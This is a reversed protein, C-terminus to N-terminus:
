HGQIMACFSPEGRGGSGAFLAWSRGQRAPVSRPARVWSRNGAPCRLLLAGFWGWNCWSDWCSLCLRDEGGRGARRKGPASIEARLPPAVKEPLTQRPERRGDEGLAGPNLPAPAPPPQGSSPRVQLSLCRCRALDRRGGPAGPLLAAGLQEWLHPRSHQSLTGGHQSM